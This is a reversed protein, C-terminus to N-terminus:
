YKNSSKSINAEAPHQGEVMIGLENQLSPTLKKDKVYVRWVMYATTLFLIILNCFIFAGTSANVTDNTHGTSHVVGTSATGSLTPSLKALWGWTSQNWDM